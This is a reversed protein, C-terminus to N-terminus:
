SPLSSFLGFSTTTAGVARDPEGVRPVAAHRDEADLALALQTPLAHEADRRAAAIGLEDDLLVLVLMGFPRQKEGSSDSSYM